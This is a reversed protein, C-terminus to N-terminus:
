GHTEVRIRLEIAQNRATRRVTRKEEEAIRPPQTIFARAPERLGGDLFGRTREIGKDALRSILEQAAAAEGGGKWAARARQRQGDMAQKFGAEDVQLGVDEAFERTLELPLGYTDYLRFAEEGPIAGGGSAEVAEVVEEFVRTGAALARFFRNEEATTVRAILEEAQRLEPYVLPVLQHLAERHGDGWDLLLQTLNPPAAAM